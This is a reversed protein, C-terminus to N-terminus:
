PKNTRNLSTVIFYFLALGYAQREGTTLRKWGGYKTKWESDSTESNTSAVSRRQMLGAEVCELLARLKVKCLNPPEVVM